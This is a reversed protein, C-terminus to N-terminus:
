AGKEERADAVILMGKLSALVIRQENRSLGEIRALLERVEARSDQSKEAQV